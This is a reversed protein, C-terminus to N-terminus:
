AGLGDAAVVNLGSNAIGDQDAFEIASNGNGSFEPVMTGAGTIQLNDISVLSTKLQM